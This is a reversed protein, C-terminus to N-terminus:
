STPLRDTQTLLRRRLPARAALKRSRCGARDRHVHHCELAAGVIDSKSRGPALSVLQLTFDRHCWCFLNKAFMKRSPWKLTTYVPAAPTQDGDSPGTGYNRDTGGLSPPPAADAYQPMHFSEKEEAHVEASCFLLCMIAFADLMSTPASAIKIAM